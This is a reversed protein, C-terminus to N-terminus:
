QPLMMLKDAEICFTQAPNNPVKTRCAVWTRPIRLPRTILEANIVSGGSQADHIISNKIQANHRRSNDRFTFAYSTTFHNTRAKGSFDILM